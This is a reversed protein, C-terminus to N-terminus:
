SHGGTAPLFIALAIDAFWIGLAALPVQWKRPRTCSSIFTIVIQVLLGGVAAFIELLRAWSDSNALIYFSVGVSAILSILNVIFTISAATRLSPLVTYDLKHPM